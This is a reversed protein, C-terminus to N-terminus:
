RELRYVFRPFRNNGCLGSADHVAKRPHCVPEGRLNSALVKAVKM